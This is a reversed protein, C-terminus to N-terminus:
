WYLGSASLRDDLTELAEFVAERAAQGVPRRRIRTEHGGIPGGRGGDRDVTELLVGYKTETGDRLVSGDLASSITVAVEVVGERRTREHQGAAVIVTWKMTSEDLFVEREIEGVQVKVIWELKDVTRDGIELVRYNPSSSLAETAYDKAIGVLRQAQPSASYGEVVVGVPIRRGRDADNRLPPDILIGGPSLPARDAVVASQTGCGPVALLLAAVPLLMRMAMQHNM